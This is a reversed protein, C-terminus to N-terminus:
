LPSGFKWPLVEEAKVCVTFLAEVEVATTDESLGEAGPCDTVKLAVTVTTAGPEPVGVPVTVKLSPVVVIQLETASEEEPWAGHLTELRTAPVCEIM